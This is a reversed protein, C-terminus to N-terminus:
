GGGWVGGGGGLGGGGVVVGWGVRGWVFVVLGFNSGGGCGVGRSGGCGRGGGRWVGGWFSLGLVVGVVFVGIDGLVGWLGAGSGGGWLELGRIVWFFFGMRGGGVVASGVVVRSGELGVGFGVV